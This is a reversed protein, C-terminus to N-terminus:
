LTVEVDTHVGVRLTARILQTWYEAGESIPSSSLVIEGGYAVENGWLAQNAERNFCQVLAEAVLDKEVEMDRLPFDQPWSLNVEVVIAVDGSFLNYKQTDGTPELIDTTYLNLLPYTVSRKAKFDDVTWGQVMFFNSSASSTFDIEFDDLDSNDLDRFEKALAAVIANLGTAENALLRLAAHRAQYTVYM